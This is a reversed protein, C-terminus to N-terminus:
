VGCGGVVCRWGKRCSQLVAGKALLRQFQLLYRRRWFASRTNLLGRVESSCYERLCTESGHFLSGSEEEKEEKEKLGGLQELSGTMEALESEMEEKARQEAEGEYALRSCSRSEGM